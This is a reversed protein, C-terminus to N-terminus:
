FRFPPQTLFADIRVPERVACAPLSLRRSLRASQRAGPRASNGFRKDVPSVPTQTGVAPQGHLGSDLCHHYM